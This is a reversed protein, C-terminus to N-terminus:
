CVLHFRDSSRSYGCGAALGSGQNRNDDSGDALLRADALPNAISTTSGLGSSASIMPSTAWPGHRHNPATLGECATLGKCTSAPSGSTAIGLSAGGARDLVTEALDLAESVRLGARWLIVILARLRAADAVDGAARMVAIM